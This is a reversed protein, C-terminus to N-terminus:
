NNGFQVETLMANPLCFDSSQLLIPHPTFPPNNQWTNGLITLNIIYIPM